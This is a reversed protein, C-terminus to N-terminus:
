NGTGWIASTSATSSPPEPFIACYDIPSLFCLSLFLGWIFWQSLTMHTYTGMLVLFTGATPIIFIVILPTGLNYPMSKSM